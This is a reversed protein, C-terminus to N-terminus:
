STGVGLFDIFPVDQQEIPAMLDAEEHESAVPLTDNCKSILECSDSIARESSLLHPKFHCQYASFCSPYKEYTEMLEKSKSDLGLSENTVTSASVTWSPSPSSSILSNCKKQLGLRSIYDSVVARSRFCVDPNKGSCSNLIPECPRDGRFSRKDSSTAPREHRKTRAVMVHYHNKVDNDTRGPFLRAISAWRNGHLQHAELLRREEEDTFRRKNINPDLQNYWRLRCSKGSRGQLHEAIFNWNRPGYQHVFQRLKEDECPRWHGRSWSSSKGGDRICGKPENTEM